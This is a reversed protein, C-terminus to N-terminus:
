HLGAARKVGNELYYPPIFHLPPTSHCSLQRRSLGLVEIAPIRPLPCCLLHIKPARVPSVLGLICAAMPNPLGRFVPRTLPRPLLRRSPLSRPPASPAGIILRRRFVVAKGRLPHGLGRYFRAPFRAIADNPRGRLLLLTLDLLALGSTRPAMGCQLRFRYTRVPLGLASLWPRIIRRLRVLTQRCLCHSSLGPGM